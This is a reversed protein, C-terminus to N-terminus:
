DPIRKVLEKICDWFVYGIFLTTAFDFILKLVVAQFVAESTSGLVEAIVKIEDIM